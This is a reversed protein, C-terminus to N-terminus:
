IRFRFSRTTSKHTDGGNFTREYFNVTENQDIALIASSRTGYTPGSIFIPALLREWELGIGTDPLLAEDPMTQDALLSFIAEVPLSGGDSLLKEMAQRGRTVKPWPTDLLHNSLGHFGPELLPPMEGKNSYVYLQELDGFVMSFGNFQRAHQRLIDLHRAPQTSGLLFDTVLSGRSPAGPKVSRPDRFNVLAAVRGTRSIGLWTGGQDLDRGALLHPETDWFSAPATPRHYFEDRNAAIVLPYRPHARYAILILCM